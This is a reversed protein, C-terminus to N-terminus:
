KSLVKQVATDDGKAPGVPETAKAPQATYKVTKLSTKDTGRVAVQPITLVQGVALDSNKTLNNAQEIDVYNFGSGYFAQAIKWTSDGAKVTYQAPLNKPVIEGKANQGLQPEQPLETIVLPSSSPAPSAANKQSIQRKWDRVYSFLLAGIIIVVLAGLIMSVISESDTPISAPLQFPLKYAPQAAVVPPVEPKKPTTVKAAVTRKVAAKSVTVKVKPKALRAM